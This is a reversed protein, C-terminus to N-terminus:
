HDKISRHGQIMTVSCSHCTPITTQGPTHAPVHLGTTLAYYSSDQHEAYWMLTYQRYLCLTLQVRSACRGACNAVRTSPAPRASFNVPVIDIPMPSLLSDWHHLTHGPRLGDGRFGLDQSRLWLHARTQKSSRATGTRVYSVHHM